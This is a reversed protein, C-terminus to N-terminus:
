ESTKLKRHMRNVTLDFSSVPLNQALTQRQIIKLVPEGFLSSNGLERMFDSVVKNNRADGKIELRDNNATLSTIFLDPPTLRVLSDFVKVMDPRSQQLRKIAQLRDILRQEAQRMNKIEKEAHRVQAIQQNLYNNRAQQANIMWGIYVHMMIVCGIALLVVGALIIFFQRQQQERRLQRWPLLNIRTM